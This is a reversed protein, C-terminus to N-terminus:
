RPSSLALRSDFAAGYYRLYDVIRIPCSEMREVPGTRSGGSSSMRWSVMPDATAMAHSGFATAKLSQPFTHCRQGSQM